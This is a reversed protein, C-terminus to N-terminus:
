QNSITEKDNKTLTKGYKLRSLAEIPYNNLNLKRLVFNFVGILLLGIVVSVFISSNGVDLNDVCIYLYVCGLIGNTILIYHIFDTM